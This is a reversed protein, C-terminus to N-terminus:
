QRAAAAVEPSAIYIKYPDPKPLNLVRRATHEIIPIRGGRFECYGVVDDRRDVIAPLASPPLDIAYASVVLAISRDTLNIIESHM